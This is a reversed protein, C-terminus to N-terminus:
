SENDKREGYSCFHDKPAQMVCMWAECCKPHKCTENERWWHKCDKCRVVPVLNRDEIADQYGKEWQERDDELVKLLEDRDVNIGVDQVAKVVDNEIQMRMQGYIIDIPSKYM